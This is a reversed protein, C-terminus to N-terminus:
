LLAGAATREPFIGPVWQEPPQTPGPILTFIEVKGPKSGQIM